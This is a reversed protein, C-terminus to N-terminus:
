TLFQLSTTVPFVTMETVVLYEIVFGIVMISLTSKFIKNNNKALVIKPHYM